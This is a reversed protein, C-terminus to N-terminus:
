KKNSKKGKNKTTSKKQNKKKPKDKKFSKKSTRKKRKQTKKKEDPRYRLFYKEYEATNRKNKLEKYKETKESRITEITSQNGYCKIGFRKLLGVQKLRNKQQVDFLFSAMCLIREDDYYPRNSYLFALYFSLMTDISAVKIIRDNEMFQNYSHCALPEYIFVVTNKGVIVEYHPAIVEGIGPKKTIKVDKFEYDLLREKIIEATQKPNTSLVDFDPIPAINKNKNKNYQKLLKHALAGFFIVGNDILIKKTINFLDKKNTKSDGEFLRQIEINKCKGDLLPYHKNLLTLRKLVKEWRSVDGRPRSLELFMSMRLYNPPCYLIGNIKISDRKLNNFIEPVLFTIDAVPIFDVFVKFTGAHIGAKAEVEQFGEKYYIDALEKADNLANKSFFDYDPIEVNRDYFQDQEPLINNIATGGYCISKKKRLFDEVIEIIRKINSNSLTERGIKEQINDVSKRLINLECDNFDKSKTCSM